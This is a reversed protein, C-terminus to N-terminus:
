NRSLTEDVIWIKTPHFYDGDTMFVQCGRHEIVVHTKGYCDRVTDGKRFYKGYQQYEDFGVQGETPHNM